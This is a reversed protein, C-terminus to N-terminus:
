VYKLSEAALMIGTWLGDSEGPHCQISSLNGPSSFSCDATYGERDHRPVLDWYWAEKRSLSWSQLQLVAVGTETVVMVNALANHQSIEEANPNSVSVARM